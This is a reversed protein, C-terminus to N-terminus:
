VLFTSYLIIVLQYDKKKCLFIVVPFYGTTIKIMSHNLRGNCITLNSNLSIKIPVLKKWFRKWFLTKRFNRIKMNPKMKSFVRNIRILLVSRMSCVKVSNKSIKKTYFFRTNKSIFEDRRTSKVDFFYTRKGARVANSYLEERFKSDDGIRESNREFVEM